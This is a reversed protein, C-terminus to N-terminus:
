ETRIQFAIGSVTSYKKKGHTVERLMEKAEPLAFVEKLNRLKGM